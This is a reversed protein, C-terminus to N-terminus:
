NSKRRRALYANTLASVATASWSVFFVKEWVKLHEYEQQSRSAGLKDVYLGGRDYYPAYPFHFVGYAMVIFLMALSVTGILRAM